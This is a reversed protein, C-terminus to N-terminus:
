KIFFQPVHFIIYFFKAFDLNRISNSLEYKLILYKYGASFKSRDSLFCNWRIEAGFSDSNVNSSYGGDAYEAFVIDVYQKNISKSNFWRLNHDWDAHVKYKLNYNGIKKFVRNNFFIAQHCINKRCIKENSFEGDYLGDFRTSFVNGYIVDLTNSKTSYENMKFLVDNSFFKDDSGLFYLWEGKALEIGKNMADYIGKDKESFWKILSDTFALYKKVILSTDDISCSDIIVIEFNRYSQDLISDLCVSLTKASNYTPIIISFFPQKM